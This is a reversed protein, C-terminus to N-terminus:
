WFGGNEFAQMTTEVFYRLPDGGAWQGGEVTARLASAHHQPVRFSIIVDGNPLEVWRNGRDDSIDRSVAHTPWQTKRVPIGSGLTEQAPEPVVEVVAPPAELAPQAEVEPAFRDTNEKRFKEAQEQWTLGSEKASLDVVEVTGALIKTRPELHMFRHGSPCVFPETSDTDYALKKSCTPCPKEETLNIIM